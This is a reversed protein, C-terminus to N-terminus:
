HTAVLVVLLRPQEHVDLVPGVVLVVRGLSDVNNLHNHNLAAAAAAPVIGVPTAVFRHLLLLRERITVVREIVHADGTQLSVLLGVDLSNM